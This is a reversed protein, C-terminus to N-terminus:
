RERAVCLRLPRVAVAIHEDCGQHNDGAERNGGCRLVPVYSAADVQHFQGADLPGIRGDAARGNHRVTKWVPNQNHTIAQGATTDAPRRSM